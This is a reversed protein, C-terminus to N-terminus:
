NLIKYNVTMFLSDSTTGLIVFYITSDGDVTINTDFVYSTIEDNVMPRQYRFARNSGAVRLATTGRVVQVSFPSTSTANDLFTYIGNIYIRKGRVAAETLTSDMLIDATGVLTITKYESTQTAAEQPILALGVAFLALILAAIVKKM